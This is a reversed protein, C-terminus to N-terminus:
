RPADALASPPPRPEIGAPTHSSAAIATQKPRVSPVAISQDDSCTVSTPSTLGLAPAQPSAQTLPNM